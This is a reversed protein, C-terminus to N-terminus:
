LDYFCLVSLGAAFFFVFGVVGLKYKNECALEM